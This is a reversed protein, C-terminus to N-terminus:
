KNKLKRKQDKKITENKWYNINAERFKATCENVTLGCFVKVFPSEVKLIYNGYGWSKKARYLTQEPNKWLIWKKKIKLEKKM